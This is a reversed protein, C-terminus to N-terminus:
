SRKRAMRGSFTFWEVAGNPGRVFNARQGTPVGGVMPLVYDDRYFVLSVEQGPPVDVPSGGPQLLTSRLGGRDATLVLAASETEGSATIDQGEYRGEYEALRDPSLVQPEAPLNHLGAFRSLAWDDLFFDRKLPVGGTSNTLITLAFNKEPVFLWGSHQGPWDGGHQVIRVGEASPRLQLTVGYGDLEVFLTGGPGPRSRMAELSSTSLIRTGDAATGDGLHFRLYDVQDRVSSILGGAPNLSRPVYWLTPDLVARGDPGLTHSGAFSSGVLEDTFFRTHDLKLPDLVLERVAQEYTTGHITALLHGALVMGTNNYFFHSGPPTLQPLSAMSAVYRTLADDGRGFDQLDDALWGPSLNLLQRVTVQASAVPDAVAFDPLYTRVPADLDVRGADVLRMLATGTFTKTTSGIRFLTHEDVGQPADVSTIGFGRVHERGEYLVGVAVGPVAFEKMAAQIKEDLEAFLRDAASAATTGATSGVPSVGPGAASSSRERTCALTSVGVAALAVAGAGAKLMSRRSLGQAVKVDGQEQM